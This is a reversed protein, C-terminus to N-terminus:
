IACMEFKSDGYGRPKKKQKCHSVISFLIAEKNFFLIHINLRLNLNNMQGHSANISHLLM